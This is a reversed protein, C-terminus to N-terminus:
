SQVSDVFERWRGTMQEDTEVLHVGYWFEDVGPARSSWVREAKLTLGATPLTIDVQSENGGSRDQVALRLGEYSIDILRAPEDNLRAPHLAVQKRPWRRIMANLARREGLVSKVAPLFDPNDLPHSIFTFGRQAAERECGRDDTSDVIVVPLQPHDRRGLAALAFGSFPHLDAEAVLLDPIVSNLLRGAIRVTTAPAVLYGAESLLGDLQRLQKRDASVVLILAPL